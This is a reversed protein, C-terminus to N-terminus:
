EGNKNLRSNLQAAEEDVSTHFKKRKDSNYEPGKDAKSVVTTVEAAPKKDLQAKAESLQRKLSANVTALRQNEREMAAIRANATALQASATADAPDEEGETSEVIMAWNDDETVAPDTPPENGQNNDIKTEFNRINGETDPHNCISGDGSGDTNFVLEESWAVGQPEAATPEAVAAKTTAKKGFISGVAKKLSMNSQNSQHSKNKNAALSAAIEVADIISGLSDIMGMSLADEAKYMKGTFIEDGAKLRDGRGEKVVSIFQDALASLDAVIESRQEDQLPEIVNVRAKDVSQAARMFEVSGINEEIFKSWNEHVYLVGISGFETPNNKNGVIHSAQSAIWYAASAVMNDGFAVVPKKSNRITLGFENTGDVTGGPSEIDLVIAAIEENENLLAIENSYDRMGVSCMEGRKTLSGIVPMIAVYQGSKSKVKRVSAYQGIQETRMGQYRGAVKRANDSKAEQFSITGKQLQHLLVPIVREAFSKEFAWARYSLLNTLENLM